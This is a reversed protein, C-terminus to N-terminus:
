TLRYRARSNRVGPVAPARRTLSRATTGRQRRQRPSEDRHRRRATDREAADVAIWTPSIALLDIDGGGRVIPIGWTGARRM